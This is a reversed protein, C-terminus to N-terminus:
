PKLKTTDVYGYQGGSQRALKILFNQQPKTATRGFEIVSITAGVRSNLREMEAMESASMPDDADTLFFIVDPRFALAQKLAVFRDTGGDATIGGIFNAALKKNRETGFAIRRGGGTIDLSRMRHNFFIIHFQHVTELSKLSAILQRKAAALPRGEMSSSRDFVYVFKNGTGEVGFVSVKAYSDGDPSGRLGGERLVSAASRTKDGSQTGPAATQTVPPTERGVTVTAWEPATAEVEPVPTAEVTTSEAVQDEEGEYLDGKASTRKLVIGASRTPEEAAGRPAQEIAVGLLLLTCSHFAISILWAPLRGRPVQAAPLSSNM